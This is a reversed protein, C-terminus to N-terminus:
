CDISIAERISNIFTSRLNNNSLLRERLDQPIEIQVGSKLKGRNCINDSHKGNYGNPHATSTNFNDKLKNIIRDAYYNNKGGVYVTNDRDLCGHITIIMLSHKMMELAQPEDFARSNLHLRFGSDTKDTLGEFTYLSSNNGAIEKGLESTGVEINGGHPVFILFPSNRKITKVVYDVGDIENQSLEAYNRYVDIHRNAIKFSSDALISPGNNIEISLSM